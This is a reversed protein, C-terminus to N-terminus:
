GMSLCAIKKETPTWCLVAKRQCNQIIASGESGVQRWISPRGHQACIPVAFQVTRICMPVDMDVCEVCMRLDVSGFAFRPGVAVAESGRTAAAAAKARAISCDAGRATVRVCPLRRGRRASVRNSFGVTDLSSSHLCGTSFVPCFRM